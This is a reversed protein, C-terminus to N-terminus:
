YREVFGDEDSSEDCIHEERQVFLLVFFYLTTPAGSFPYDM